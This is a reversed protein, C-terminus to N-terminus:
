PSTPKPNVFLVAGGRMALVTALLQLEFTKSGRPALGISEPEDRESM